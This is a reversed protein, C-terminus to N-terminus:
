LPASQDPLAFLEDDSGIPIRTGPVYHGVKMSGPKEYVASVLSEDLGLLKVLIAARGPFAKARLRGQQRVLSRLERGKNQKWRAMNGRLTTFDAGFGAERATIEDVNAV